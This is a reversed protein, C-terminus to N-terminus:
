IKGEAKGKKLDEILTTKQKNFLEVREMTLGMPSLSAMKSSLIVVCQDWIHASKEDKTVGAAAFIEDAMKEFMKVTTEM